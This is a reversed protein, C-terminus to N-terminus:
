RLLTNALRHRIRLRSLGGDRCDPLRVASAWSVRFSHLQLRLRSAWLCFSFWRFWTAPTQKAQSLSLFFSFLSLSLSRICLSLSLSCWHQSPQTPKSLSRSRSDRAAWCRSTGSISTCVTPVGVRYASFDIGHSIRWHNTHIVSFLM